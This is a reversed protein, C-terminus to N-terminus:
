ESRLSVSQSSDAKMPEFSVGTSCFQKRWLVFTLLADITMFYNARGAIHEDLMRGVARPDFLDDYYATESLTECVFERSGERIAEEHPISKPPVSTKWRHTRCLYRELKGRYEELARLFPSRWVAIDQKLSRNTNGMVVSTTEPLHRMLLLPNYLSRARAQPSIKGVAYDFVDNDYYPELPLSVDGLVDETNGHRCTRFYFNFEDGRSILNDTQARRYIMGPTGASEHLATRAMGPSLIAQMQELYPHVAGNVARVGDEVTKATFLEHPFHRGSIFNGMMGSMAYKLGHAQMFLVAQCIWAAYAGTKGETRWTSEPAYCALYESTVPLHYHPIGLTEALARGVLVDQGTEMGLSAATIKHDPQVQRVMGALIRSDMGGTLLLLTDERVRRRVANRLREAMEDAYEEDRREPMGPHFYTPKWYTRLSLRGDEFTLIAAPPLSHIDRFLTRGELPTRYLFIDAVCVPDVVKQFDPHWSISKYESAFMLRKGEHWYYMKSYGQRDRVLTLRGTKEEFIALVYTGNLGCVAPLGGILYRDLLTDALTWEVRRGTVPIPPPASDLFVLGHVALWIRGRSGPGIRSALPSGAGDLYVSAIGGATGAHRSAALGPARLLPSVMRDLEDRHTALGTDSITGVIGPM